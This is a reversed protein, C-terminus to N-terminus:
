VFRLSKLLKNKMAQLPPLPCVPTPPFYKETVSLQGLLAIARVIEPESIQDPHFTVSVTQQAANVCSATIGPLQLASKIAVAQGAKVPEDFSFIKLHVPRNQETLSLPRLNAYLLLVVFSACLVGTTKILVKQM